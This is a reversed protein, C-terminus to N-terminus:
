LSRARPRRRVPRRAFVTPPARLPVAASEPGAHQSLREFATDRVKAPSLPEPDQGREKRLHVYRNVAFLLMAAAAILLIRQLPNGRVWAARDALVEDRHGLYPTLFLLVPAANMGQAQLAAQALDAGKPREILGALTLEVGANALQPHARTVAWQVFADRAKRSVVMGGLVKGEDAGGPPATFPLFYLGEDSTDGPMAGLLLQHRIMVDVRLVAEHPAEGDPVRYHDLPVASPLPQQALRTYLAADRAYEFRLGLSVALLLLAALVLVWLPGRSIFSLIRSLPDEKRLAGILLGVSRPCDPM